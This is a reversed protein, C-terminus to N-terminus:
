HMKCCAQRLKMKLIWTRVKFQSDLSTKLKQIERWIIDSPTICKNLLVWHLHHASAHSSFRLAELSDSLILFVTFNIGIKAFFDNLTTTCACLFFLKYFLWILGRSSILETFPFKSILRLCYLNAEGAIFRCQVANEQCIRCVTCCPFFRAWNDFNYIWQM